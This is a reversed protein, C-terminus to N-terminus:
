IIKLLRKHPNYSCCLLWKKKHIDLEVFFCELPLNESSIINCPIDERVFLMLGGGKDNRDFRIPKNYGNIFFQNQPFSDDLKTESILLIDVKGKVMETLADFKNRISNINIHALLLNKIHERRLKNLIDIDYFSSNLVESNSKLVVTNKHSLIQSSNSNIQPSQSTINCSSYPEEITVISDNYLSISSM